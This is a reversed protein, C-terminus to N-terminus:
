VETSNKENHKRFEWESMYEFGGLNRVIKDAVEDSVEIGAPSAVWGANVIHLENCEKLLRKHEADFSQSLTTFSYHVNSHVPQTVLYEKKFQDRCLVILLTSWKYTRRAAAVKFSDPVNVREGEKNFFQCAKTGTCFGILYRNIVSTHATIQKNPRHYPLPKRRKM